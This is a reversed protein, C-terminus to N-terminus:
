DRVLVQSFRLNGRTNLRMAFLPFLFELDGFFADERFKGRDGEPVDVSNQFPIVLGAM